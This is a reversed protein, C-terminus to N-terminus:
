RGTLSLSGYSAPIDGYAVQKNGRLIVIELYGMQTPKNITLDVQLGKIRYDKPAKGEVETNVVHGDAEMVSYFGNFAQGESGTIRITYTADNGSPSDTNGACGGMVPLLLFSLCLMLTTGCIVRSAKQQKTM